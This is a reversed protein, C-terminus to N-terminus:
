YRKSAAIMLEHLQHMEKAINELYVSLNIMTNKTLDSKVKFHDDIAKNFAQVNNKINSIIKKSKQVESPLIINIELMNNLQILAILFNNATNIM